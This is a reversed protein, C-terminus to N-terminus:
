AIRCDLRASFTTTLIDAPLARSWLLDFSIPVGETDGRVLIRECGAQRCLAIMKDFAV